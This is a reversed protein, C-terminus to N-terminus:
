ILGAGDDGGILDDDSEEHTVDVHGVYTEDPAPAETHAPGAEGSFVKLNHEWSAGHVWIFQKMEDRTADRKKAGEGDLAAAIQKRQVDTVELTKDINVKM